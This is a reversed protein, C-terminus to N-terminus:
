RIKSAALGAVTRVLARDPGTASITVSGRLRVYIRWRDTDADRYEYAGDGVSRVETVPQDVHPRIADFDAAPFLEVVYAVRTAGSGPPRVGYVCRAVTGDPANFPKADLSTGGVGAAVDPAPVTECVNVKRLDPPNGGAQLPLLLLTALRPLTHRPM